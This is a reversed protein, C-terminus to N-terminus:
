SVDFLRGEYTIRGTADLLTLGAQLESFEETWLFLVVGNEVRDHLSRGSPVTLRAEATNSDALWGGVVAATGDPGPHGWGGWMTWPSEPVPHHHGSSAGSSRWAGSETQFLGILVGQSDGNDDHFSVAYVANRAARVERDVRLVGPHVHWQRAVRDLAAQRATVTEM